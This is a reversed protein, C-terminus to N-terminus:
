VEGPVFTQSTDELDTSEITDPAGGLDPYSKIKCLQTLSSSTTGFKLVTHITSYAKAM